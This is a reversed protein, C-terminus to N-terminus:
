ESSRRVIWSHWELDVLLQVLAAARRLAPMGLMMPLRTMVLPRAVALTMRALAMALALVVAPLVALM